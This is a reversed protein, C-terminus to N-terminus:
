AVIINAPVGYHKEAKTLAEKNKQWFEIGGQVRQPTLFLSKYVDWSKKEYPREMSEIIQPQLKVDNMVTLLERRNFGHQKVMVNIFQQVDKRQTFTQEAHVLTTSLFMAFTFLCLSIRRM